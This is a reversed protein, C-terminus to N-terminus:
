DPLCVLLSLISISYLYDNFKITMAFLREFNSNAEKCTKITRENNLVYLHDCRCIKTRPLNIIEDTFSIAM